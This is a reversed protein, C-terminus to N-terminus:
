GRALQRLHFRGKPHLCESHSQATASSMRSCTGMVFLTRIESIRSQSSHDIAARQAGQRRHVTWSRLKPLKSHPERVHVSRIRYPGEIGIIGTVAGNGVFLGFIQGM